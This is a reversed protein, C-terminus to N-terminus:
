LPLVELFELKIFELELHYELKLFKLEWFNPWRPVTSRSNTRNFFIIHYEHKTFELEMCCLVRASWALTHKNKHYKVKKYPDAPERPHAVHVELNANDLERIIPTAPYVAQGHWRISDHIVTIDRVGLILVRHIVSHAGNTNAMEWTDRFLFCLRLNQGIVYYRVLPLASVFNDCTALADNSM